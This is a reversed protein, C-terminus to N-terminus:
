TSVSLLTEAPKKCGEHAQFLAPKGCQHHYFLGITVDRDPRVGRVRNVRRHGLVADWYQHM